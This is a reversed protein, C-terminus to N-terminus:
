YSVLLGSLTGHVLEASSEDLPALDLGIAELVESLLLLTEGYAELLNESTNNSTLKSLHSDLSLIPKCIEPLSGLKKM